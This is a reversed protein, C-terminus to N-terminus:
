DFKSYFEKLFYSYTYANFFKFIQKQYQKTFHFLYVFIKLNKLGRCFPCIFFFIFFVRQLLVKQSYLDEVHQKQYLMNFKLTFVWMCFRLFNNLDGIHFAEFFIYKILLIRIQLICNFWHHWSFIFKLSVFLYLNIKYQFM